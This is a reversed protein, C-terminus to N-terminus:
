WQIKKTGTKLGDREYKGKGGWAVVTSYALKYIKKLKQFFKSRSINM